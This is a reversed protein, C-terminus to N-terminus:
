RPPRTCNEAFYREMREAVEDTVWWRKQPRQERGGDEDRRADESRADPEDVGRDAVDGGPPDADHPQM